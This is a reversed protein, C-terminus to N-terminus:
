VGVQPPSSVANTSPSGMMETEQLEKMIRKKEKNERNSKVEGYFYSIFGWLSLFLSIGKEAEFKEHYFIVALLETAPLLVAVILVSLLSSGYSTVGLAGVFFFQSFLGNGVVTLYYNTIGLEFERAERSLVQFDHNILMGVTCFLTAVLSMVMQFELVLGYEIMGTKGKNYSLEIVPMLLGYLAASGVTLLFGLAYDKNSEGKPRDNGARAGLVVAALTLLVVANVTFPTFKQRVLFYAFVATFALQSSLILSSTSVPLKAVGYTYLYNNLGMLLGVAAASAVLFPTILFVEANQRRRRHLYSAALPVCIVPWAATQQWTSFWVRKGGRLFYLRTLLPNGCNGVALLVANFLLLVTRMKTWGQRGEDESGGM